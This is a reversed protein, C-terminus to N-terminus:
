AASRASLARAKILKRAETITLDCEGSVGRPIVSIKGGSRLFAQVDDAVRKAEVEHNTM